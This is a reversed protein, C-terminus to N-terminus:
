AYVYLRQTHVVAANVSLVDGWRKASARGNAPKHAVRIDKAQARTM